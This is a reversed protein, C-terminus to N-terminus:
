NGIHNNLFELIDEYVQVACDDNLIEHRCDRYLTMETNLVGAKLYKKYVKEVGKGYSGVPDDSGAVLYLPLTLPTAKFTSKKCARKVIGFLTIFGNCTFPVGCLEDAIYNDVNEPNKSLWDYETRLPKFKKNYSGFALNNVLKSRHEAGKFLAVTKAVLIGSGTVIAPQFGSGMIVAGAYDAGYMSIFARCFFSGMSHGLLFFPVDADHERLKLSFVRLDYLVDDVGNKSFYGLKSKDTVSKGHGLHDDAGVIFGHKALYEAFPAYREGYEAMGHIIQVIGRPKGEPLWVVAHITTKGDHSLFTIHEM